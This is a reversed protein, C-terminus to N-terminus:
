NKNRWEFVKQGCDYVPYWKHAIMLAENDTGKGYIEPPNLKSGVLQDFGRQRLLNDTIYQYKQKTNNWIKQPPTLDVSNFGIREYVDGNFKSVDCYSIISEPQYNRIFYKFLKEAGGIVYYNSDTCLRLLEWQYNKNYRPKGFTMVQIIDDNLYLGLNIDNGRCSGQLHYNNIFLNAQQKTIEKLQLKRAYLKQKPTVLQIIKAINDWNWINICRYGLSNAFSTKNIHYNKDRPAFVGTNICTHTFTPNIEFLINQNQLKIDYSYSGVRFEKIYGNLEREVFIGCSDLLDAFERNNKSIITSQKEQCAPLLCPHAVGYKELMTKMRRENFIERNMNHVKEFCEESCYNTKSIYGSPAVPYEFRKGCCKCIGFHAKEYAEKACDECLLSGSLKGSPLRKIEFEKGCNKCIRHTAQWNLKKQCDSCYKTNNSKLISKGCLECKKWRMEEICSNCYLKESYAGSQTIERKFKKGCRKCIAYGYKQELYIKYCEDSCTIRKTYNGSPLREYIFEKGCVPCIHKVRTQKLAELECEKSCYKRKSYRGSPLKEVQFTKGCFTCIREM